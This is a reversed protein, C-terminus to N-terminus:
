PTGEGTPGGTKSSGLTQNEKVVIVQSERVSDTSITKKPVRTFLWLRTRPLAGEGELSWRGSPRPSPVLM